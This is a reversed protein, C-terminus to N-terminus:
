AVKAFNPVPRAHPPEGTYFEGKWKTLPVTHLNNNRAFEVVRQINVVIRRARGLSASRIADLLDDGLTMRPAFADALLKTDGADCPQAQMWDLVRNHVREYSLLKNPLREEGILIVPAGSHEHLERVTEIMGRDVLKDAEDVILLTSNEGLSVICKEAIDAASLRKRLDAETAGLEKWIARLLTRRTWTDGVEVRVAGTKNQTFISAWSKGYGSPSSCVGIGPLHLDREILRTAMAMFAAVNKLAVPGSSSKASSPQKTM